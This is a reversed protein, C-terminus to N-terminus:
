HKQRIELSSTMLLFRQGMGLGPNGIAVVTQGQRVNTVDTLALHQFGTGDVKLLAMDMDPDIYVVKAELKQGTSLIAALTQEGRAVHANTAIV